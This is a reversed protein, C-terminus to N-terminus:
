IGYQDLLQDTANPDYNTANPDLCGSVACDGPASSSSTTSGAEGVTVSFNAGDCQGWQMGWGSWGDAAGTVAVVYEFSSGPDFEASGTFVGDGDDDFLQVGWGGWGNWSGNIVVSDYDASPQDVSNMDASFEVTATTPAAACTADCSGWCYALTQSTNPEGATFYRNWYGDAEAACDLGTLDEQDVWAGISYKYDHYEGASFYQTHTWIGDGDDDSMANYCDGCWGNYTGQVHPTGSLGDPLDLAFVVEALGCVTGGACNWWGEWWEGSTGDEWLCGTATPIDDCSEYTCTSTGFENYSQDTANPDYNTANPDLCGSVAEECVTGGYMSCEAPGFGDNWGAFADAYMCGDGPTDVCSAYVCVLNGWQDEEQVTADPNYNTANADLCGSVATECPTGGYSSCAAADFSDNFAGWGDAYM